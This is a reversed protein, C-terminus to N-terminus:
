ESIQVLENEYTISPPERRGVTGADSPRVILKAAIDGYRLFGHGVHTHSEHTQFNRLVGLVDSGIQVRESVSLRACLILGM